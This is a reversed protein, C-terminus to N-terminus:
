EREWCSWIYSLTQALKLELHSNYLSRVLVSSRARNNSSKFWSMSSVTEGVVLVVHFNVHRLVRGTPWLKYTSSKFKHKNWDVSQPLSTITTTNNYWCGLQRRLNLGRSLITSSACCSSSFLQKKSKAQQNESKNLSWTTLSHNFCLPQFLLIALSFSFFCGSPSSLHKWTITITVFQSRISEDLQLFSYFDARRTTTRFTLSERRDRRLVNLLHREHDAVLRIEACCGTANLKGTNNNKNSGVPNLCRLYAVVHDGRM